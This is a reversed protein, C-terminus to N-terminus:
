KRAQARLSLADHNRSYQRHHALLEDLDAAVPTGQRHHQHLRDHQQEQEAIPDVGDDVMQVHDDEILGTIEIAAGQYGGELVAAIEVHRGMGQRTRLQGVGNVGSPRLHRQM